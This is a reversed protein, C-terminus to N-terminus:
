GDTHVSGFDLNLPDISRARSLCVRQTLMLSRASGM